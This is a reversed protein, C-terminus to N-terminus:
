LTHSNKGESGSSPFTLNWWSIPEVLIYTGIDFVVV